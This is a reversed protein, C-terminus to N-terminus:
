INFLGKQFFHSRTMIIQKNFSGATPTKKSSALNSMMSVMESLTKIVLPKLLELTDLYFILIKPFYLLFHTFNYFAFYITFALEISTDM